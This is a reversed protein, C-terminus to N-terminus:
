VPCRGRHCRASRRSARRFPSTCSIFLSWDRAARFVSYTPTAPCCCWPFDVSLWLMTSLIQRLWLSAAVTAFTPLVKPSTDDVYALGVTDMPDAAAGVALVAATGLGSGGLTIAPASATPVSPPRGAPDPATM